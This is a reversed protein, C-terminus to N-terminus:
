LGRDGMFPTVNRIPEDSIQWTYQCEPVAVTKVAMKGDADIAVIRLTLSSGRWGGLRLVNYEYGNAIDVRSNSGGNHNAAFTVGTHVLEEVLSGGYIASVVIRRFTVVNADAVCQFVVPTSRSLVSGEPPSVIIITPAPFDGGLSGVEEQGLYAGVYSM